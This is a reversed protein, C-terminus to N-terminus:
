VVMFHQESLRGEDVWARTEGDMFGHVYVANVVTYDRGDGEVERLLLPVKGGDVVVIVDGERAGERVMLFLGTDAKTFMWRTFMKDMMQGSALSAYSSYWWSEESLPERMLEWFAKDDEAVQTKTLREIPYAVCDGALTRWFAQSEPEGNVSRFLM